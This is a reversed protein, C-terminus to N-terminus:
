RGMIEGTDRAERENFAPGASEIKLDLYEAVFQTAILAWDYV